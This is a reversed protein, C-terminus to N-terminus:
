FLLAVTLLLYHMEVNGKTCKVDRVWCNRWNDPLEVTFCCFCCFRWIATFSVKTSIIAGYVHTRVHM